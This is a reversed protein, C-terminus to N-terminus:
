HAFDFDGVAIIPCNVLPGPQPDPAVTLASRKDRIRDFVQRDYVYVAWLPSYEPDGPVSFVVNHTQEPNATEHVFGSPPGAETRFTVFIPSTPVRDDDDLLVAPDFELCTVRHGRYRLEHPHPPVVGRAGRATTGAPVIPCDIVVDSGLATLESLQAVETVSGPEVEPGVEVFAVRWFDSYGPDGPLVDVLDPQGPLPDRSGRRVIRYLLAPTDPQVDFNYYRVPKGDPGLGQSIFPPHDLDIPAGPQPLEPKKSRVMLHGAADSFRDIIPEGNPGFRPGTHAGPNSGCGLVVAIALVRKM